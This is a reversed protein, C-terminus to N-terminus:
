RAPHAGLGHRRCLHPLCLFHHCLLSCVFTAGCSAAQVMNVIPTSLVAWGTPGGGNGQGLGQFPIDESICSTSSAGFATGVFHKMQQLATFVSLVPGLPCGLRLTCLVAFSHVVCDCCSKADNLCLSNNRVGSTMLLSLTSLRKSPDTNRAVAV